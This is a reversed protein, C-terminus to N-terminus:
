PRVRPELHLLFLCGVKVWSGHGVVLYERKRYVVGVGEDARLYPLFTDKQAPPLLLAPTHDKIKYIKLTPSLEGKPYGWPYTMHFLMPFTGNGEM